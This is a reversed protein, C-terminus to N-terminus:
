KSLHFNLNRKSDVIWKEKFGIRTWCHSISIGPSTKESIILPCNYQSFKENKQTSFFIRREHEGLYLAILNFNPFPTSLESITVSDFAPYFHSVSDYLGVAMENELQEPTIWDPLFQTRQDFVPGRYGASWQSPIQAHATSFVMALLALQYSKM